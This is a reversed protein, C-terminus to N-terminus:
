RKDRQPKRGEYLGKVEAATLAYSYIHVDDIRGKLARENRHSDSGIWVNYSNIAISGVVAASLDRQGDIYLTATRGDYVGAVHHWHGDSVAKKGPVGSDVGIDGPINLGCVFKLTDTWGQLKWSTGKAIVTRWIGLPGSAKIWSSITIKEVMGFLLDNGCDVWDGDGDLELVKGRVPDDVIRADGVLTADIKNGSLDPATKGSVEDFTYRAILKGAHLYQGHYPQGAQYLQLKAQYQARSGPRVDPPLKTIAQYQWKVAQEFQSTQAYAAALTDIYNYNDWNSLECAKTANQVAKTGNRFDASNDVLVAM